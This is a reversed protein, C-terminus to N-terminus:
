KKIPLQPRAPGTYPKAGLQLGRHPVSTLAPDTTSPAEIMGFYRGMWYQELWCAPDVVSAGKGDVDLVTWDRNVRKGGTERPSLAKIRDAYSRYGKPTHIDSRHSNFQSWAVLDLPWDRLHQVAPEVECDNGTIAGYIFNYWPVHEMRKVEWSRDLSRLWLSKLEPETEYRLLPHYVLFALRDDFDTYFGPHFTMKQRLVEAPYEWAILQEKGKKFKEDQTFHHATTMYSLAELGNLGRAYFGGPRQLYEPDWRAWRTPEGDVDRLVWGNDVIHGFVRAIHEIAMDREQGEAVLEIFLSVAYLHADTEDSSTDGKWEFLGDPTVHWEAPLGGSGEKAKIGKDGVVWISRAPFGPITTIEESWKITTMVNVAEARAAPDKTVAYEYCKAALYHATFGVDNDGIARVWEGDIKGLSQTFGLRRMGWEELWREYWSAKKLLTYPEYRIIGIGGDTAIYATDKSVAIANVHGDPLWRAHGYFDYSDGHSRIAGNTTGIWLDTAFGPVLCTTDEYCLGDEGTIAYWSMGRLVGIGRDTAVLLRNGLSHLDRVTAGTQLGGWDAVDDYEVMGKQVLGIQNANRIYIVGSHSAIGLIPDRVEELIPTLSDAELKYVGTATAAYVSGSHECVDVINSTAVRKWDNGDYRWLGKDSAAFLASGIVKLKAIAGSPGDVNKLASGELRKVGSEDTTFVADGFVAIGSIPKDTAVLESSDQMYVDDATPTWKPNQPRGLEGYGSVALALSLISVCLVRNM